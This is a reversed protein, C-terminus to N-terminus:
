RKPIKYPYRVVAGIGVGIYFLNGALASDEHRFGTLQYGARIRLSPYTVPRRPADFDTSPKGLLCDVNLGFSVYGATNYSREANEPLADLPIALVSFGGGLYPKLSLKGSKALTFGLDAGLSFHIATSDKAVNQKKLEFNRRTRQVGLTLKGGLTFGRHWFGLGLSGGYFPKLNLGLRGDPRGFQFLLDIDAGKKGLLTNSYLYDGLYTRFRSHPYAKLFRLVKGDQEAMEADTPRPTLLYELLLTAFAKEEADLGSKQIGDYLEYRHDASIEDLLEILSDQPPQEMNQMEWIYDANYRVVDEFIRAYSGSWFWLMWREEPYIGLVEQAHTGRMLTDIWANVSSDAGDLFAARLFQRQQSVVEFISAQPAPVRFLTDTQANSFHGALLYILLTFFRKIMRLKLLILM